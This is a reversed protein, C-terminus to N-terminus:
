SQFASPQGVPPPPGRSSAAATACSESPLIEFRLNAKNLRSLLVSGFATAPTLFGGRLVVAPLQSRQTALALGCESLMLATDGYGGDRGHVRGYLTEERGNEIKAAFIYQFWNQSIRRDSPGTGPKPAFLAILKTFGPIKLFFGAVAIALTAIWSMVLSKVLMFESYRFPASSYSHNLASGHDVPPLFASHGELAKGRSAFIAASRRVVRTNIPAMVFMATHCGLRRTPLSFDSLAVVSSAADKPVLFLPDSMSSSGPARAITLGSAITGGSVSGKAVVFAQVHNIGSAYRRRAESAMFFVGIDAPISDFGCMSVLITGNAKAEHEYKQIMSDVWLTEGTIDCYDCRHRICARILPEGYLYFPGATSVIVRACSAATDPDGVVVPVPSCGPQQLVESAIAQLKRENRGGIAWVLGPPAARALYLAVLRGTFGTAGWVLLDYLKQSPNAAAMDFAVQAAAARRKSLAHM